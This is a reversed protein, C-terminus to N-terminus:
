QRYMCNLLCSDFTDPNSKIQCVVPSFMRMLKDSGYLTHDNLVGKKMLRKRGLKIVRALSSVGIQAKILSLLKVAYKDKVCTMQFLVFRELRGKEKGLLKSFSMGASLKMRTFYFSVMRFWEEENLEGYDPYKKFCVTIMQELDLNSKARNVQSSVVVINDPEYGRTNDVRDVSWDTLLGESFTLEDHTVPCYYHTRILANEIDQCTISVLRQKAYARDKIGMLKKEYVTPKKRSVQQFKAAEYGQEIPRRDDIEFKFLELPLNFRFKDFGLEFFKCSM